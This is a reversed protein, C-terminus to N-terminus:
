FDLALGHQQGNVFFYISGLYLWQSSITHQLDLALGSVCTQGTPAAQPYAQPYGPIQGPMPFGTMPMGTSGAAIQILMQQIQTSLQIMGSANVNGVGMGMGTGMPNYSYGPIPPAAGPVAAGTSQLDMTISTGDVRQGRFQSGPTAAVPAAGGVLVTGFAQQYPIAGAKVRAQDFYMGTITFPIMTTANLPVCGTAAALPAPLAPAIPAPVASPPATNDPSKGCGTLLALSSVVLATAAIKRPNLKRKM